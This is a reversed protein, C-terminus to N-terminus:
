RTRCAYKCQKLETKAILAGQADYVMVRAKYYYKTGKTGATNTYAKGALELKAAYGKAKKTSRYFKYKVTYGLDEIAKAEEENANLTVKINGKATKASRAKLTLDSVLKEVKATQEAIVENANDEAMVAYSSFHGTKFTFTGDANKQGGVKHYTNNADIYVCVVPKAALSANLKVTISVSGGNFNRVDGGSTVLRLDLQVKNADQAVTKVVLKVDGTTGAAEAVAKVADKDLKVEAADAKITVAAETKEAIDSVTAAPLAVETKTGVATETVASKTAANVVVETSREAVANEVITSATTTDLAATTTKTGDAETKTTPKVALTTTGGTNTTTNGSSGGSSGGSSKAPKYIIAYNSFHGTTFVIGNPNGNEDMTYTTEMELPVAKGDDAYYVVKCKTPDVGSLKLAPITINYLGSASGGTKGIDYVDLIEYGKTGLSALNNKLLTKTATAAEAGSVELTKEDAGNNKASIGTATSEAKKVHFTIGKIEDAKNNDFYLKYNTYENKQEVSYGYDKLFEILGSINQSGIEEEIKDKAYTKEAAFCHYAELFAPSDEAEPDGNAAPSLDYKEYLEGNNADLLEWFKKGIIAEGEEDKLLLYRFHEAVYDITKGTSDTIKELIYGPKLELCLEAIKGQGDTTLLACANQYFASTETKEENVTWSLESSPTVDMAWESFELDGNIYEVGDTAGSVTINMGKALCVVAYAEYTNDGDENESNTQLNATFKSYINNHGHYKEGKLTVKSAVLTLTEDHDDGVKCTIKFTKDNADVSTISYIEDLKKSGKSRRDRESGDKIPDVIYEHGGDVMYLFQQYSEQTLKTGEPHLVYFSNEEANPALSMNIHKTLNTNKADITDQNPDVDGLLCGSELLADLSEYSDKAPLAKCPIVEGGWLGVEPTAKYGSEPAWSQTDDDSDGSSVKDAALGVSPMMTFAVCLALLLAFIKRKM